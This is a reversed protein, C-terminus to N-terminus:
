VFISHNALFFSWFTMAKTLSLYSERFNTFLLYLHSGSSHCDFTFVIFGNLLLQLLQALWILVGIEVFFTLCVLLLIFSHSFFIFVPFSSYVTFYAILWCWRMQFSIIPYLAVVLLEYLQFDVELPHLSVISPYFILLISLRMLYAPFDATFYLM